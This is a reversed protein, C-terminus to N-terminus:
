ETLAFANLVYIKSHHSCDRSYWRPSSDWWIENALCPRSRELFGLVPNLPHCEGHSQLSGIDWHGLVTNYFETSSSAVFGSGLCNFIGICKESSNPSGPMQGLNWNLYNCQTESFKELKWKIYYEKKGVEQGLSNLLTATVQLVALTDWKM